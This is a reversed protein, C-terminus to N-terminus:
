LLLASCIHDMSLLKHLAETLMNDQIANIKVDLATLHYDNNTGAAGTLSRHQAAEIMQLLNITSTDINIPLQYTIALVFALQNLIALGVNGAHTGLNAKDKLAEIEKRM